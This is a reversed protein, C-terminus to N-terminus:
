KDPGAAAVSPSRDYKAGRRRTMDGLFDRYTDAGRQRHRSFRRVIRGTPVFNAHCRCERGADRLRERCKCAGVEHRTLLLVMVVAYKVAEYMRSITSVTPM